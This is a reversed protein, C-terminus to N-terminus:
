ANAYRVYTHCVAQVEGAVVKSAQVDWDRAPIKHISEYNIVHIFYDAGLMANDAEISSIAKKKTLFLVNRAGLEEAVSLSTLTKGTRVEMALYCWGSDRMKAVAKRLQIM